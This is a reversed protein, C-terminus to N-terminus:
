FREQTRTLEYIEEMLIHKYNSLSSLYQNLNNEVEFYNLINKLFSITSKKYNINELVIDTFKENYTTSFKKVYNYFANYNLDEIKYFNQLVELMEIIKIYEKSYKINVNKIEINRINKIDNDVNSSYIIIKKSIQTTLNLKNYLNYGVIMGENNKTFISIIEEDSIPVVGFKTIRPFYYIGKSLKEIEKNKYMRELIKYFSTETVNKNYLKEKYLKSAFIIENKHYKNLENRVIESYNM